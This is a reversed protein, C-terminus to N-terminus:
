WGAAMRAAGSPQLQDRGGQVVVLQVESEIQLHLEDDISDILTITCGAARSARAVPPSRMGCEIRLGCTYPFNSRHARTFMSAVVRSPRRAARTAEASM